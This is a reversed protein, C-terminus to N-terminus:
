AKDSRSAKAFVKKIDTKTKENDNDEALDTNLIFEYEGACLPKETLAVYVDKKIRAGKIGKIVVEDAKFSPLFNTGNVTTVPIMRIEASARDPMSGELYRAIGEPAAARVAKYQAIMVPSSTFVERLTNGTDAFGRGRCTVGSRTVSVDYVSQVPSKRAILKEGVSILTFCIVSLLALLSFSINYYVAGNDYILADTKFVVILATIFGGFLLNVFLLTLTNRLFGRFSYAKFTAASVTLCMVIRLAIEGPTGLDPLFIKLSFLSSIIAAALVRIRGTKLRLIKMTCLIMLYDIFGNLVLLVDVYVPM